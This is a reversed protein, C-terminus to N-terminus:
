SQQNLFFNQVDPYIKAISTHIAVTNWLHLKFHINNYSPIYSVGIIDDVKEKKAAWYLDGRIVSCGESIMTAFFSGTVKFQLASPRGSGVISHNLSPSGTLVEGVSLLDWRTSKGAPDRNKRRVMFLLFSCSAPTYQHTAFFMTPEAM